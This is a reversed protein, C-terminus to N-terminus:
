LWDTNAVRKTSAYPLGTTEEAANADMDARYMVVPGEGNQLVAAVGTEAIGTQVQYGLAELEKAVIGATRVEMFGLEPNQHLDKFIAVLRSKDADILTDVDGALAKPLPSQEAKAHQAFSLTAGVVVIKAVSSLSKM